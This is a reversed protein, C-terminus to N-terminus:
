QKGWNLKSCEANMKIIVLKSGHLMEHLKNTIDERDIDNIENLNICYDIEGEMGWPVQEYTVQDGLSELYVNLLKYSSMDIGAGLSIFSIVFDYQSSTAM